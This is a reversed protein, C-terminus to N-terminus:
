SIYVHMYICTCTGRILDQLFCNHHETFITLSVENMIIISRMGLIEGEVDKVDIRMNKNIRFSIKLLPSPSRPLSQDHISVSSTNPTWVYVVYRVHVYVGTMLTRVHDFGGM